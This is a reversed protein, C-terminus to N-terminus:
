YGGVYNSEYGGSGFGYGPSGYGGYGGETIAAAAGSAGLGTTGALYNLVGALDLWNPRTLGAKTNLAGVLDLWVAREIGAWTNAAGQADFTTGSLRQLEAQLEAM